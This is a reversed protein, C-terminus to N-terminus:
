LTGCLAKVADVDYADADNAFLNIDSVDTLRVFQASAVPNIDISADRTAAAAVVTWPGLATPGVEVQVKEDPYVGGTVEFVQLDAGPQNFFPNTFGLVINGGTFGLAFFSGVPFGVDSSAGTTQPAGFMASPVSRNALVASSDKRTGQNNNSASSAYTEVCAIPSPTPVISATPSPVPTPIVQGCIYNPIDQSAVATFSIDGKISDTQSINTKGSGDCTVGPNVSPNVGSGAAVPAPTLEGFCWAKGIYHTVGGVLPTNPTGTYINNTADAIAYTVSTGPNQPLDSPKGNLVINENSELVNDGDDAWFLFEVHEDLEGAWVGDTTDPIQSEPENIGNEASETLAINACLWHGTDEVHFSITDESLDGPKLDTFNFFLEDTLDKLTWSTTPQFVGNYWSSNDITLDIGGVALVNGISSENDSFLASTAGVAVLSLLIGM